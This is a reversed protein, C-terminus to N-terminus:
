GIHLADGDVPPEAPEVENTNVLDEAFHLYVRIIAKLYDSSVWKGSNKLFTFCSLDIRDKIMFAKMDAPKAGENLLAFYADNLEKRARSNRQIYTYASVYTQFLKMNAQVSANVTGLGSMLESIPQRESRPMNRVIWELPKIPSTFVMGAANRLWQSNEISFPARAAHGTPLQNGSPIRNTAM